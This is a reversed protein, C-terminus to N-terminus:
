VRMIWRGVDQVRVCIFIRDMQLVMDQVNVDFHRSEKQLWSLIRAGHKYSNLIKILEKDYGRETEYKTKTILYHVVHSHGKLAALHLAVFINKSQKKELTNIKITYILVSHAYTPCIYSFKRIDTCTYKCIGTHVNSDVAFTKCVEISSLLKVIQLRGNLAAIHLASRGVKGTVTVPTPDGYEEALTEMLPFILGQECYKFVKRVAERQMEHDIITVAYVTSVKKIIELLDRVVSESDNQLPEIWYELKQNKLKFWFKETAFVHSVSSPLVSHRVLCIIVQIICTSILLAIIKLFMGAGFM